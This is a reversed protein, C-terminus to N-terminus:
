KSEYYAVIERWCRAKRKGIGENYHLFMSVLRKELAEETVFQIQKKLTRKIQKNFSEIRNNTYILGRLGEPFEYFTLTNEAKESWLGLKPYEGKWKAVFDGLAKKGSEACDQKAMSMFGDAAGSRRSPRVKSCVNRLLHVFCRQRKAKPYASSLADDIGPLGDAAAVEIESLGRSRFDALLEGYAEASEQPTISYGVVIPEGADTVGLAINVAEKAVTGRRLPVYTSDLFIAFLRRPLARKSFGRVDEIVADTIASLTSKSCNAEYISSIALRMEEDTMGSSYLKLVTSTILDTRRQYRPIAIPKYEGNRDRPVEVSIPGLSTQITRQYTGNRSDGSNRGAAEYRAYGLMSAVETEPLSEIAEKTALAAAKRM